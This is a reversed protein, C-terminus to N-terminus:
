QEGHRDAAAEFTGVATEIANRFLRTDTAGACMSAITAVLERDLARFALRREGLEAAFSALGQAYDQGRHRSALYERGRQGVRGYKDPARLADQLLAVIDDIERETSIKCVIDDPLEGYWGVNTVLTPLAASWYRLQSASAEGMTPWRLNIAFHASHLAKELEAEDVYGRIDLYDAVGFHGAYQKLQTSNRINGFMELVIRGPDDLRGWAEFFELLRRNPGVHGCFVFKLTQAQYNRPLPAPPVPAPLNLQRVEIGEPLQNLLAEAAYRSHVVVGLADEVFPQFLPYRATMENYDALSKESRNVLGRVRDGYQRFMFQKWLEPEGREHALRKALDVLSLDHLVVLGPERHARHCIPLHLPNNGIHYVPLPDVGKQAVVPEPPPQWWDPDRAGVGDEVSAVAVYQQLCPMLQASYRAIETSEPDLPSFWRITM